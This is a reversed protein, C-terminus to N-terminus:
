PCPEVSSVTISSGGSAEEGAYNACTYWTAPMAARYAARTAVNITWYSKWYSGPHHVYGVGIDRYSTSLIISKHIPSNMWWELAREPTSFGWAIIETQNIWNYGADRVRDGSTSGDSGTHSPSAGHNAAMDYSHRRAATTLESVLPLPALGHRSRTDNILSLTAQEVAAQDHPPPSPTAPRPTPTATPRPTPTATPTATPTPTPTPPTDRAVLPLHSVGTPRIVEVQAEDVYMWSRKGNGNNSTAFVVWVGQGRWPTLDLDARMWKGASGQNSLTLWLAWGQTFDPTWLYVGQADSGSTDCSMASDPRASAPLMPQWGEDPSGAAQLRVEESWPYYWFRLTIQLADPPLQVGQYLTSTGCRDVQSWHVGVRGSRRGEYAAADSYQGPPDGGSLWWGDVEFGPNYLYEAEPMTPLAEGIGARLIGAITAVILLPLLYHQSPM